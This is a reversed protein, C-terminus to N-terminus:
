CPRDAAAGRHRTRDDIGTQSEIEIARHLESIAESTRGATQLAMALSLHLTGSKPVMQTGKLYTDIACPLQGSREYWKGLDEYAAANVVRTKAILAPPANCAAWAKQPLSSQMAITSLFAARIWSLAYLRNM